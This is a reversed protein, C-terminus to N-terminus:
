TVFIDTDILITAAGLTYTHYGGAAGDDSWNGVLNVSDGGNGDVRLSNTSDSLDLLDRARLELTNNGGGTLDIREIGTIENNPRATLDLTRGGGLIVLTDTGGGGDVDAFSTNAVLIRDGGAGGRVVDAGGGGVVTDGGRGSIFTEAAGSGTLSDAGGTGLHTVAGTFDGGFLVYSAGSYTGGPSALHAGVIVDDFGDGNVDGAAGVSIGAADGEVVGRVEFGNAGNLNALDIRAAFGGAKGFVVYAAGSYDYGGNPAGVIIDEFGDGNVDGAASVSAGTLDAEFVGTLTFGNSGNLNALNINAGFNAKGFVVYAAGSYDYGANPAGVILDGFCDGNVDGAASVSSGALEADDVGTLRFGNAGNLGGLNVNAGFGAKGFVV